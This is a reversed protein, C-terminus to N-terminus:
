PPSLRAVSGGEASGIRGGTGDTEVSIVVM